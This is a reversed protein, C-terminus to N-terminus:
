PAPNTIQLDLGAPVSLQPMEPQGTNTCILQADVAEGVELTTSELRLEVGAEQADAIVPRGVFAALTSLFVFAAAFNSSRLEFISFSSTRRRRPSRHGNSGKSRRDEIKPRSM